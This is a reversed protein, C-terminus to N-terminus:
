AMHYRHTMRWRSPLGYMVGYKRGSCRQTVSGALSAFIHGFAHRKADRLESNPIRFESHYPAAVGHALRIPTYTISLFLITKCFLM